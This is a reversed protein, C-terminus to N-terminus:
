WDTPYGLEIARAAEFAQPIRAQTAIDYLSKIAFKRASEPTLELQSLITLPWILFRSALTFTTGSKDLFHTVSALVETVLQTSDDMAIAQFAKVDFDNYLQLNELMGQKKARGVGSAVRWVVEKLFLRMIRLMNWHRVTRYAPYSHAFGQYSCAPAINSPIVQYQWSEPLIGMLARVEKELQLADNILGPLEELPCFRRVRAHLISIKDLLPGARINPMNTDLFPKAQNVDLFPKAENFIQRFEESVAIGRQMCSSRFSNCTQIFLRTGLDTTFQKTGRLRILAVAGKTHATWSALSRGGPFAIAEYLGLLLVAILCNDLTATDSSSLAVNTRTLAEMYYKRATTMLKQSGVRVSLSAYSAALIASSVADEANPVDIRKQHKIPILKEKGECAKRDVFRWGTSTESLTREELCYESQTKSSKNATRETLSWRIPTETFTSPPREDFYCGSPTEVFPLPTSTRARSSNSLITNSIVPLYDFPSSIIYSSMFYGIAFEEQSPSLSYPPLSVSGLARGGPAAFLELGSGEKPLIQPLVAKNRKLQSKRATSETEDKFLLL